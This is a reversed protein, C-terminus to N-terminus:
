ITFQKQLQKRNLKYAEEQKEVLERQKRLQERREKINPLILPTELVKEIAECVEDFREMIVLEM